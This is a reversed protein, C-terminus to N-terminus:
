TVIEPERMAEASLTREVGDIRVVVEVDYTEGWGLRAGSANWDPATTDYTVDLTEAPALTQDWGAYGDGSFVRPNRASLSGVLNVDSDLVRVSVIEFPVEEGVAGAELHIQLSSQSCSGGCAYSGGSCDLREQALGSACDQALTVSSLSAEVSLTPAPHSALCAALPLSTLALMTLHARTTMASRSAPKTGLRGQLDGRFM